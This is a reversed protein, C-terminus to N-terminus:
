SIRTIGSFGDFGTDFTLIRDIGHEEMIALHVSNRGSLHRNGLVIAKACQVVARGIAPVQDVIGLLADLAPQIAETAPM